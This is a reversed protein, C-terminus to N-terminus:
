AIPDVNRASAQRWTQDVPENTECGELVRCKVARLRHTAGGKANGADDGTGFQERVVQGQRATTAVRHLTQKVVEANADIQPVFTIGATGDLGRKEALQGQLLLGGGPRQQRVLGTHESSRGPKPLVTTAADTM